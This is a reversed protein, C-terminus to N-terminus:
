LDLIHDPIMTFKHSLSRYFPWTGNTIISFLKQAIYKGKMKFKAVIVLLNFRMALVGHFKADRKWCVRDSKRSEMMSCSHQTVYLWNWSTYRGVPPIQHLFVHHLPIADNGLGVRKKLNEIVVWFGVGEGRWLGEGPFFFQYHFGSPRLKLVFDSSELRVLTLKERFIGIDTKRFCCGM